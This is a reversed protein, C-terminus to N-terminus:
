TFLQIRRPSDRKEVRSSRNLFSASGLRQEQTSGIILFNTSRAGCYFPKASEPANRPSLFPAQRYKIYADVPSVLMVVRQHKVLCTPLKPRDAHIVGWIPQSFQVRKKLLVCPWVLLLPDRGSACGLGAQLM